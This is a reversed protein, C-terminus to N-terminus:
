TIKKRQRLSPRKALDARHNWVLLLFHGAWVGLLVPDDFWLLLALLMGTLALLVAWGSPTILLSFVVLLSLSILPMTWITIGIWVGFAAAIAKGGRWTVETGMTQDIEALKMADYKALRINSDMALGAGAHGRDYLEYLINCIPKIREAPLEVFTNASLAISITAPMENLDYHQLVRTILPLLPYKKGQVELDFRLNFWDNDSEGELDDDSDVLVEWNDAEVFSMNFSDAVQVVWGESELAPLTEKLFIRWRDIADIGVKPIEQAYENGFKLWYDDSLERIQMLDSRHLRNKFALEAELDRQIALVQGNEMVNRLPMQPFVSLEATGYQFRLRIRHNQGAINNVTDLYLHPVPLLGVIDVQAINGPLPIPLGPVLSLQQESFAAADENALVPAERLLRWERANFEADSLPGIVSEDESLFFPPFFNLVRFGPAVKLDLKLQDNETEDWIVQLPQSEGLTLPPNGTNHWFCRNTEIMKILCLRGLDGSIGFTLAYSTRGKFAELMRGIHKDMETASREYSLGGYSNMKRGRTRTGKKTIKCEVYRVNLEGPMLGDELLYAVFEADPIVAEPQGAKRMNELWRQKLDPQSAPQSDATLYSLCAAVIHKCNFGVPCSCIGDIDIGFSGSAEISIEQRYFNGSGAVRSRLIVYDSDIVEFAFDEVRGDKFYQEGRSFTPGDFELRIQQHSIKLM